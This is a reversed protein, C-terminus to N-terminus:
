GKLLTSESSEPGPPVCSVSNLGGQAGTELILLNITGMGQPDVHKPGRLFLCLPGGPLGTRVVKWYSM